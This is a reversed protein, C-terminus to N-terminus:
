RCGRIISPESTGKVNRRKVESGERENAGARIPFADKKRLAFKWTNERNM